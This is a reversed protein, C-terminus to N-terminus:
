AFPVYSAKVACNFNAQFTRWALLDFVWYRRRTLSGAGHIHLLLQRLPVASRPKVNWVNHIGLLAKRLLNEAKVYIREPFMRLFESRFYYGHMLMWIFNSLRLLSRVTILEIGRWAPTYRTFSHEYWVRCVIYVFILLVLSVVAIFVIGLCQGCLIVKYTVVIKTFILSREKEYNGTSSLEEWTSQVCYTNGSSPWTRRLM